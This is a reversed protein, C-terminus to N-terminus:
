KSYWQYQEGTKMGSVAERSRSQRHEDKNGPKVYADIEIHKQPQKKEHM